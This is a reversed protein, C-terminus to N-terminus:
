SLGLDTRVRQYEPTLEGNAERVSFSEIELAAPQRHFEYVSLFPQSRDARSHVDSRAVLHLGADRAANEVRDNWTTQFVLHFRGHTDLWRSAAECYAEVGGRTEFRCALRQPDAPHVGTGLPFYPPSGTILDYTGESHVERFDACLSTITPANAPLETISRATMAASQEQAEFGTSQGPRLRHAVMLLVSGIGCGLDLYRAPPRAWRRCAHWAVLVDDTSTRHGGTRQHLYWDGVLRDRRADKPWEDVGVKYLFVLCRSLVKRAAERKM